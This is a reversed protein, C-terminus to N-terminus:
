VVILEDGHAIQYCEYEACTDYIELQENNSFKLVLTGPPKRGAEIITANLFSTLMAAAPITTKYIASIEQLQSIHAIDTSISISVEQDFRLIAAHRGISVEHLERNVLFSLDVGAPLGYMTM